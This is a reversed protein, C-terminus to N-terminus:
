IEIVTSFASTLLAGPDIPAPGRHIAVGIRLVLSRDRLPANEERARECIRKALTMAEDLSDTRPLIMAFSESGLHAVFDGARVGDLLSMATTKLLANAVERGRDASFRKWGDLEFVLLAFPGEDIAQRLQIELMANNPLATVADHLLLYRLREEERRKRTVETQRVVVGGTPMRNHVVELWRNGSLREMHPQAGRARDLRLTVWREFPETPAAGDEGRYLGDDWNARLLAELTPREGAAALGPNLARFRQNCSQLRLDRDLVAFGASMSEIAAELDARAAREQRLLRRQALCAKVRARLVATRLPKSIFDAAGAEIYPLAVHEEDARTLLLIQADAGGATAAFQDLVAQGDRGLLHADCVVLEVPQGDLLQVGEAVDPLAYCEVRMGSLDDRLVRRVDPDPDIVLARALPGSATPDTADKTEPTRRLRDVLPLLAGAEKVIDTLLPETAEDVEVSMDAAIDELILEGYGKVAGLHARLECRIREEDEPTVDAERVTLAAREIRTMRCVSESARRITAVDGEFGAPGSGLRTVLVRLRQSAKGLSDLTSAVQAIMQTNPRPM